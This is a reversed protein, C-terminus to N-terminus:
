VPVCVRTFITILGARPQTCLVSLSMRGKCLVDVPHHLCVSVCIHPIGGSSTRELAELVRRPKYRLGACCAM